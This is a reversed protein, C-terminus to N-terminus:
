HWFSRAASARDSRKRWHISISTPRDLGTWPPSSGEWCTTFEPISSAFCTTIDAIGSLVAPFMDPYKVLSGGAYMTVKVRGNTLKEVQKGWEKYVRVTSGAPPIFTAFKLEIVKAQTAPVSGTFLLVGVAAIVLLVFFIKEKM